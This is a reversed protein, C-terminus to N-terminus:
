EFEDGGEIETTQAKETKDLDINNDSVALRDATVTDM